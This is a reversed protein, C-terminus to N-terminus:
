SVPTDEGLVERFVKPFMSCAYADVLNELREYAALFSRGRDTLFSEGGTQGGSKRVIVEADIESEMTNILKWGKSYSMGINACARKVSGASEIERLLMAVGPGFFGRHNAMQLKVSLRISGSTQSIYHEPLQDQAIVSPDPVDILMWESRTRRVEELITPDSRKALNGALQRSIKFLNGIERRYTVTACTAESALLQRYTRLLIDPTKCSTVVYGQTDIRLNRVADLASQTWTNTRYNVDEFFFIRGGSEKLYDAMEERIREAHEGAVVCIADLDTDVLTRLARRLATFGGNCELPLFRDATGRAVLMGIM